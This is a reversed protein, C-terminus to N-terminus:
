QPKGNIYLSFPGSTARKYVAEYEAPTIPDGNEEIAQYDIRSGPSNLDYESFDITPRENLLIIRECAPPQRDDLVKYYNCLGNRQHKRYYRTPM